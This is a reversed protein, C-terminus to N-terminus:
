SLTDPSSPTTKAKTGLTQTRRLLIKNFLYFFVTVTTVVSIFDAIPESVLVAFTQNDIFRPLILILPILLIIKRLLALFLSVRAESLAIFAQQCSIQAGFLFVVAMYISITDTTIDILAQDNTFFGIFVHPFLKLSLWFLFSYGLSSIFLLKFTQKVRTINGAGYNYSMIPQAGQSLGMLPLILMQMLSATITMAGVALDGGYLQLSRNFTINLLSETSQMIFPSVGLTVIMILYRPNIKLYSWRIKLQTKKGTLFKLVWLASVAQSIVTAIAAGTVGMDFVFILIPDLIINLTAGILITIMSFLAYGQTSIYPNLGLAFQITIAGLSIIKLYDWAYPLTDSSAGFLQLLDQGFTFFVFSLTLSLFFLTAVGTGLIKEAEEKNGEGMKIAAQPAGGIGILSSFSMIIIFIPFAIGVGTLALPGVEPIRGIYMRDIINYLMNVVQAFINPLALTFLLKGIPSQDLQLTRSM